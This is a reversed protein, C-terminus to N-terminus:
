KEADRKMRIFRDYIGRSRASAVLYEMDLYNKWKAYLRATMEMPAEDDQILGLILDETSPIFFTQFDLTVPVRRGIAAMDASSGALRLRLGPGGGRHRMPVPGRWRDEMVFGEQELFNLLKAREEPTLNVTLEVTGVETGMGLMRLALEGTFAHFLENGDLYRCLTRLLPSVPDM